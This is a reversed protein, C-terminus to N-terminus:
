AAHLRYLEHVRDSAFMLCFKDAEDREQVGLQNVKHLARRFLQQVRVDPLVVSTIQTPTPITAGNTYIRLVWHQAQIGIEEYCSKLETLLTDASSGYILNAPLAAVKFSDRIM